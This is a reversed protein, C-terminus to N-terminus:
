QSVRGFERGWRPKNPTVDDLIRGERAAELIGQENAQYFAFDKLDSRMFRPKDAPNPRIVPGDTPTTM